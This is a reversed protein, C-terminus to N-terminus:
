DSLFFLPPQLLRPVKVMQWINTLSVEKKSKYEKGGWPPDCFIVDQKLEHVM